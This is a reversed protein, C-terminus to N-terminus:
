QYIRKHEHQGLQRTKIQTEWSMRDGKSWKGSGALALPDNDWPRADPKGQYKGQKYVVVQEKEGCAALGTALVLAVAVGLLPRM